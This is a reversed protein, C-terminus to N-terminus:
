QIPHDYPKILRCPKSYYLDRVDMIDRWKFHEEPLKNESKLPLVVYQTLYGLTNIKNLNSSSVSQKYEKKM